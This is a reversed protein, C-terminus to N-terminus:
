NGRAMQRVGRKFPGCPNGNNDGMLAMVSSQLAVILPNSLDVTKNDALFISAKPGVISLRYPAGTAIICTGYPGVVPVGVRVLTSQFQIAQLYADSCNQLADALGSYAAAGGTLQDQTTMFSVAERSENDVWSGIAMNVIAPM